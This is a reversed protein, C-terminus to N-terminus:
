KKQAHAMYIITRIPIQGFVFDLKGNLGIPGLGISPAVDFGLAQLKGTLENPKIFKEPDHTGKPLLGLINEALWIVVLRALWTRNITDFLFIGDAKLVRKVEALVDDLDNVHELVDVCVVIDMSRDPLPLREGAAVAYEIALDQSQAHAKAIAIAQAAPDIGTVNAGRMAIAEAMFGGACGLDLVSQGPWRVVRDFYSLRAPVLNQLTRLWRVSGDWWHAAYRDYITLDNRLAHRRPWPVFYSHSKRYDAFRAGFLRLFRAEKFRPGILCYASLVIALILQDPTWVSVTWVALTFAFYIPQRSLRFLGREPMPPYNPKRNQLVAWWGILGTQLGFGADLIAKGLLLWSAAYLLTLVIYATGEAEWWIVGSPTWLSFLLLTQLGAITVYTTPVLDAAVPGPALYRLAAQGKRTLFLSHALPFQLLLAANVIVNWPAELRGFCYSLGFHMQVIMMAVGAIFLGHCLLGYFVAITKRQAGSVESM